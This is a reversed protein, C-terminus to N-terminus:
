FTSKKISKTYLPSFFFDLFFNVFSVFLYQCLQMVSNYHKCLCYPFVFSFM